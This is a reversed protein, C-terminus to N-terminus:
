KKVNVKELAAKLGGGIKEPSGYGWFHVFFLRPSENIMHNHIATVTIGNETLTKIVPNVESAILVFDGTSAVQKGANEFNISTAVGMSPSIEMGNETVTEARPIGIQYVSGHATGKRGISKEVASWDMAPIKAPKSAGIPTATLSLANKMKQALDDATGHGEYHMYMVHPLEDLLHNHLATIEIGSELLKAMVHPVESQ